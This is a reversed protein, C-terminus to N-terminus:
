KKIQTNSQLGNDMHPINESDQNKKPEYKFFLSFNVQDLTTRFLIKKM